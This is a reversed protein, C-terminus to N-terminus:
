GTIQVAVNWETTNYALYRYRLARREVLEQFALYEHNRWGPYNFYEDFVIVSGPQLRDALFDFITKTSSYLDCDVHLFAIPEDHEAVFAPLTENFWGVHLKVNSRVAPLKGHMHFAGKGYATQWDEPLGEFSDFGHVTSDVREAIMNITRGSWVGFELFLGHRRRAHELGYLLIEAKDSSRQATRMHQAAYEAGELMAALRLAGDHTYVGKHMIQLSRSRLVRDRLWRRLRLKWPIEAPQHGPQAPLVADSSNMVNQELM